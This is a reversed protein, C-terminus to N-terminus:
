ENSTSVGVDAADRLEIFRTLVNRLLAGVQAGGAENTHRLIHLLADYGEKDRLGRRTAAVFAVNRRFTSLYPGRSCPVRRDHLFPNVVREDLTRGNFAHKGHAMYPKHVDIDPDELKALICGLLVERYAQTGSAFVLDLCHNLERDELRLKNGGLVIEEM